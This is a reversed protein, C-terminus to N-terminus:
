WLEGETIRKMQIAFYAEPTNKTMIDALKEESRIYQIDIDKDEVMDRLFNHRIDIHKTIIGVQTNKELFNVGQNYKYIVSPKQM